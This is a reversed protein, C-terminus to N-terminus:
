LGGTLDFTWAHYGCQLM